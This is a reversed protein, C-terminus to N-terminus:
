GSVQVKGTSVRTHMGPYGPVRPYRPVLLRLKWLGVTTHIFVQTCYMSLSLSRRLYLTPVPYGTVVLICLLVVRVVWIGTYWPYGAPDDPVSRPRSPGTSPHAYGAVRTGVQTGKCFCGPLPKAKRM